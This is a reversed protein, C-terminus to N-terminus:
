PRRATLRPSVPDVVQRVAELLDSIEMRRRYDPDVHRARIV